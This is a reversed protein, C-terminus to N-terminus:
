VKGVLAAAVVQATDRGSGHKVRVSTGDPALVEIVTGSNKALWDAIGKAIASV